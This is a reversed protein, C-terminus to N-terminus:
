PRVTILYPGRAFTHVCCPTDVFMILGVEDVRLKRMVDAQSALIMKVEAIRILKVESAVKSYSCEEEDWCYVLWKM